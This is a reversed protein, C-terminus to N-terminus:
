DFFRKSESESNPYNALLFLNSIFVPSFLEVNRLYINMAIVKEHDKYNSLIILLDNAEREGIINKYTITLKSQRSTEEWKYTVNESDRLINM